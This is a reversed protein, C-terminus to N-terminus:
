ATLVKILRDLAAKHKAQDMKRVNILKWQIAPLQALHEIGLCDWEPEGRKISV